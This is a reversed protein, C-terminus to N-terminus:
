AGLRTVDLVPVAGAAAARARRAHAQGARDAAGEGGRVRPRRRLAGAAGGPARRRRAFNVGVLRAPDLDPDYCTCTTAPRSWCRPWTSCRATACTTRARRSRCARGAAGPGAAALAQRAGGPCIWALHLANSERCGGAGARVPRGRAGAGAHRVPGQAPLLRRVPRRAPPLGASVNLKTDALFMDAVAQPDIGRAIRSGASRTPSRSRSRTGALQRRVQGDRRGRVAGRVVARRHRRLHRAAARHRRARARRHRDQAPRLLGQGGDGRAPVRPQLRGRLATGPAEGAARELTPLVLRDM